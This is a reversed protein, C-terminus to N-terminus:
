FHIQNFVTSHFWLNGTQLLNQLKLIKNHKLKLDGDIYMNYQCMRAGGVSISDAGLLGQSIWLGLLSQEWSMQGAASNGM